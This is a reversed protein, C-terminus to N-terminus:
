QVLPKVPTTENLLVSVDSTICYGGGKGVTAGAYLAPDGIDLFGSLTHLSSPLTAGLRVSSYGVKAGSSGNSSTLLLRDPV